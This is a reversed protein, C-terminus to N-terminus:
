HRVQSTPKMMFPVLHSGSKDQLGLQSKQGLPVSFNTLPDQTGQGAFQEAQVPPTHKWHTSPRNKSGAVLLQAGHGGGQLVQKLLSEHSRQAGPNVFCITEMLLPISSATYLSLHM